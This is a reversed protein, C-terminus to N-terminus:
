VGIMNKYFEIIEDKTKYGELLYFEAENFYVLTPTSELSYREFFESNFNGDTEVNLAFLEVDM